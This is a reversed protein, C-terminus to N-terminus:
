HLALRGTQATGTINAFVPQDAIADARSLLALREPWQKWAECDHQSRFRLVTRFESDGPGPRLIRGDVFGPFTRSIALLERLLETYAGAQEAPVRRVVSIAVLRRTTAREPRNTWSHEDRLRNWVRRRTM